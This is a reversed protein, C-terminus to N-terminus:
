KKDHRSFLFIGFLNEGGFNFKIHFCMFGESIYFTLYYKELFAFFIECVKAERCFFRVWYLKWDELKKQQFDLYLQLSHKRNFCCIKLEPQQQRSSSFSKRTVHILNNNRSIEWGKAVRLVRSLLKNDIELAAIIKLYFTEVNHVYM